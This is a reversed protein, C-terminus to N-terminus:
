WPADRQAATEVARQNGKLSCLDRSPIGDTEVRVLQGARGEVLQLGAPESVLYRNGTLSRQANAAPNVTHRTSRDTSSEDRKRSTKRPSRAEREGMHGVDLHDQGQAEPGPTIAAAPQQM